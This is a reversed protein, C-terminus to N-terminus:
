EVKVWGSSECEWLTGNSGSTASYLSGISVTTGCGSPSSTTGVIWSSWNPSTTFHSYGLFHDNTGNSDGYQVPEGLIYLGLSSDTLAVPSGCSVPCNSVQDYITNTGSKGNTIGIVTIDCVNYSTSGAKTIAPCNGSGTANSFNILNSFGSGSINFLLNNQAANRSGVLIGNSNSGSLTIDELSNNYGDLFIAASSSTGSTSCNLGHVGRTDYTGDISLCTGVSTMTLGSYPGSNNSAYNDQLNINGWLTLATLKINTFAVDQVYSLEQAYYNVIGNVNVNQSNGDLGLHEIRVRPCNYSSGASSNCFSTDAKGMDIMDTIASAAQLITTSSGEGILESNAPMIWKATTSIVGSPLLVVSPLIWTTGSHQYWTSGWPNVSCSYQVTGSMPTVGRADVLIGYLTSTSLYGASFANKIRLCIDTGGSFQNADVMAYSGQTATGCYVANFGTAGTTSCQAQAQGCGGIVIYGLALLLAARLLSYLTVIKPIRMHKEKHKKLNM